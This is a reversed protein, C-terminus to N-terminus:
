MGPGDHISGASERHEGSGETHEEGGRTAIRSAIPGPEQRIGESGQWERQADRPEAAEHDTAAVTHRPSSCRSADDREVRGAEVLDGPEHEQVPHKTTPAVLPDRGGESQPESRDAERDLRKSGSGREAFGHDGGRPEGKCPHHPRDRQCQEGQASDLRVGSGDSAHPASGVGLLSGVGFQSAGDWSLLTDLLVSRLERVNGPWAHAHLTALLEPSLPPPALGEEHAIEALLARAIPEVDIPRERLPPISVVIQRIRYYLDRRFTGARVMAELDRHTAVVVRPRTHRV